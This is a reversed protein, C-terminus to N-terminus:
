FRIAKRRRGLNRRRRVHPLHMFAVAFGLILLGAAIAIYPGRVTNAVAAKTAISAPDTLIYAGAVLPAITGGLSNLAQALTLRM